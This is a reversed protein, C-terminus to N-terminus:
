KTNIAKTNNGTRELRRLLENRIIEPMMDFYKSVTRAVANASEEFEALKFLVISFIEVNIRTPINADILIYPLAESFSPHVFKIKDTFDIMGLFEKCVKEFALEDEIAFDKSLM